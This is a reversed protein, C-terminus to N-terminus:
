LIAKLSLDLSKIHHTLAGVSIYNVGTEAYERVTSLTIGGSAETEFRGDILDVAKKLDHPSFNDLMIRDIGGIKLTEELETFNRVELVIKLYKSNIKLYKHVSDIAKQIGGAFDVHNDKIMIMDYLGMRHNEGGGLRVAEKELLRLNPTTKRTDIIKAKTGEILKVYQNTMTAIGSMRQLFNLVLREAKLISLSKGNVNFLIDGIKVKHGDKIYQKFNINQDVQKFVKEAIHIGAIIGSEKVLLQARGEANIPIIALSTHDGDQIDEQLAKKIIEDITM